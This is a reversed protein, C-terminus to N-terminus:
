IRATYAQKRRQEDTFRAEGSSAPTPPVGNGTPPVATEPTDAKIFQARNATLWELRAAQDMPEMLALIPAPLGESLQKVYVALAKEYKVATETQQELEGVRQELTAIQKQRKEALTQWEAADALEKEKTKDAQDELERRLKKEQRGLRDALIRDLDAQTFTPKQSGDSEATEAAPSDAAAGAANATPTGNGTQADPDYKFHRNMFLM